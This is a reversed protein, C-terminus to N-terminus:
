QAPELENAEPVLEIKLKETGREVQEMILQMGNAHAQSRLEELLKTGLSEGRQVFIVEAGPAKCMKLNAELIMIEATSMNETDILKGNYYANEEDFSIGPLPFDMDKIADSITQRSSDIQVTLEGLNNELEVAEKQKKTFIQVKEHMSNHVGAKTLETEFTDTNVEKNENLWKTARSNKDAIDMTEKKLRDMEQNIKEARSVREEMRFVIEMREQNKKDAEAKQAVIQATDVPKAYNKFDDPNLGAEKIFGQLSKLERGLETREDYYGKVKSEEIRLVQKTEEDLYSKIIEVQKKRGAPTKSLEVFNYDLELEGVISGIVTKKTDRMGNPATLELKVMEEEGKKSIVAKFTYDTGPVVQGKSFDSMKIQIEAKDAGKRIANKGFNGGLAGLVGKIFNSKGVTNEGILIVNYGKLDMDMDPVNRYNKFKVTQIKM